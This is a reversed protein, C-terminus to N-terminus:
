QGIVNIGVFADNITSLITLMVQNLLVDRKETRVLNRPMRVEEGPGKGALVEAQSPVAQSERALTTPLRPVEKSQNPLQLLLVPGRM